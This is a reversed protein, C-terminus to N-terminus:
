VRVRVGLRVRADTITVEDDFDLSETNFAYPYASHYYVKVEAMYDLYESLAHSYGVGYFCPQADVNVKHEESTINQDLSNFKYGMMVYLDSSDLRLGPKVLFEFPISTAKNLESEQDSSLFSLNSEVMVPMVMINKFNIMYGVSLDYPSGTENLDEYDVTCGSMLMLTSPVQAGYSGQVLFQANVFTTLLSCAVIITKSKYLM